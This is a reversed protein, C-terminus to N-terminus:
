SAFSVQSSLQLRLVLVALVARWPPGCWGKSKHMAVDSAPSWTAEDSALSRQSSAAQLGAFQSLQQALYSM